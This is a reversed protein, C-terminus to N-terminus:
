NQFSVKLNNNMMNDSDNMEFHFSEGKIRYQTIKNKYFIFGSHGNTPM